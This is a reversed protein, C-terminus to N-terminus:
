ITYHQAIARVPLFLRKSVGRIKQLTVFNRHGYCKYSRTGYFIVNTMSRCEPKVRVIVIM